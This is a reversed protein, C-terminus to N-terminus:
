DKNLFSDQNLLVNAVVTWAAYEVPDAGEPLPGLPNNALQKADVSHSQFHTTQEVLLKQLVQLTLPEAPRGLCIEFGYALREQNSPGAEKLIRRALAQACEVYVPDNLTVFAQLPTNTRIRRVTCIERSPADFVIMSPYPTSRRLFTYLARRWRDEGKSTQWDREGNFAAQWLGDPQPPFVSPGFMKDSLLGSVHLAQDRVMEASLRFRPGRSMLLNDPDLRLHEDSTKSSQQYTSSMVVTKLFRKLSWHRAYEVALWDLLEPHTPLAGQAGFDEETSVIGRGFLRAWVRNAQVRSTLPNNPHTLWKALQLRDRVPEDGWDFAVPSAAEVEQLPTLFNGKDLVFSKRQQEKELAVLVPTQPVKLSQIQEEVKAIENRLSQISPDFSRYHAELTSASESDRRDQPQRLASAITPPLLSPPIKQETWQLRFKGLLHSQGFSQALDLTLIGSGSPLQFRLHLEHDMGQQSGIAWGTSPDGDIADVASWDKQEFDSEASLIRIQGGDQPNWSFNELPARARWHSHILRRERDFFEVQLGNLRSQLNGDTRNWIRIEEVLFGGQLDIEWWPDTETENHTVSRSSFYDGDTIGDIARSAVGEHATSSQHATGLTAVNKGGSFVEVEALSLIRKEGPLSLRLLQVPQDEFKSPKWNL